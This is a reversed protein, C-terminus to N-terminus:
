LRWQQVTAWKDPHYLWGGMCGAVWVALWGYLWGHMWRFGTESIGPHDPFRSFSFTVKVRVKRDRGWGGQRPKHPIPVVDLAKFLINKLKIHTLIKGGKYTCVCWMHAQQGLPPWFLTTDSGRSRHTVQYPHQSSFDAGRFSCCISKPCLWSEVWPKTRTLCVSGVWSCVLRTKDKQHTLGKILIYHGQKDKVKSQLRSIQYQSLLVCESEM